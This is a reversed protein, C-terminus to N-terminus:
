VHSLCEEWLRLNTKLITCLMTSLSHNVAKMQDDMQPHCTTSFLLKTELINWLTRWFHGLVNADYDLIITNPMGHLRVIEVFFLNAIHSTNDTKDCPFLIHWEPSIILLWL